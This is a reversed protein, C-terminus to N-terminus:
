KMEDVLSVEENNIVRFRIYNNRLGEEIFMM